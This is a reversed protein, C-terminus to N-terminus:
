SHLLYNCNRPKRRCHSRVCHQQIKKRKYTSAASTTTTTPKTTTTATAASKIQRTIPRQLIGPLKYRAALGITIMRNQSIQESALLIEGFINMSRVQDCQRFTNAFLGARSYFFFDSLCNKDINNLLFTEAGISWNLPLLKSTCKQKLNFTGSKPHILEVFRGIVHVRLCVCSDNQGTNAVAKNQM